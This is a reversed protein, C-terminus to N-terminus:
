YDQGINTCGGEDSGEGHSHSPSKGFSNINSSDTQCSLNLQASEASSGFIAAGNVGAVPDECLLLYSTSGADYRTIGTLSLTGNASTKKVGVKPETVSPSSNSWSIDDFSGAGTPLWYSNVMVQNTFYQLIETAPLIGLNKYSGTYTIPINVPFDKEKINDTPNAAYPITEVVTSDAPIIEARLKLTSGTYDAPVTFPFTFTYNYGTSLSAATTANRGNDINATDAFENNVETEEPTPVKRFASVKAGAPFDGTVTYKATATYSQGPILNTSSPTIDTIALNLGTGITFTFQGVHRATEYGEIDGSINVNTTVQYEGDALDSTNLNFAATHAGLPIKNDPDVCTESRGITTDNPAFYQKPTEEYLPSDTELMTKRSVDTFRGTADKKRIATLFEVRRPNSQDPPQQYSAIPVEAGTINYEFKIENTAAKPMNNYVWKNQEDQVFNSGVFKTFTIRPFHPVFIAVPANVFRSDIAEYTGFPNGEYAAWGIYSGYVAGLKNYYEIHGYYQSKTAHAGAPPDGYLFEIGGKFKENYKDVCQQFSSAGILQWYLIDDATGAQGGDYRYTDNKLMPMSPINYANLTGFYGIVQPYIVVACCYGTNDNLYNQVGIPLEGSHTNSTTYSVTRDAYLPNNNVDNDETSKIASARLTDSKALEKDALNYCYVEFHATTGNKYMIEHGGYSDHTKYSYSYSGDSNPTITMSNSGGGPAAFCSFNASLLIIISALLSFLFVRKKM